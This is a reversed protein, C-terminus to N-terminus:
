RGNEGQQVAIKVPKQLEQQGAIVAPETGSHGIAQAFGQRRQRPAAMAELAERLVRTALHATAKGGRAGSDGITAAVQAIELLSPQKVHNVPRNVPEATGWDHRMAFLMCRAVLEAVNCHEAQARETIQRRLADPFDRIQWHGVTTASENEM